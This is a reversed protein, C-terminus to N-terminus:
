RLLGVETPYGTLSHLHQWRHPRALCGSIVVRVRLSIVSRSIKQTARGEIGLLCQLRASAEVRQKAGTLLGFQSSTQPFRTETQKSQAARHSPMSNFM